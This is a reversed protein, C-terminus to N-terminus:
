NGNENWIPPIVIDKVKPYLNQLYLIYISYFISNYIYLIYLIFYLYLIRDHETSQM